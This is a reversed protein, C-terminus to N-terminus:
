KNPTLSDKVYHLIMAALMNQVDWDPLTWRRQQNYAVEWIKPDSYLGPRCVNSILQKENFIVNGLTIVNLEDKTYTTGNDFGQWAFSMAHVTGDIDGTINIGFKLFDKYKSVSRPLGFFRIIDEITFNHYKVLYDFFMKFGKVIEKTSETERHAYIATVPNIILGNPHLDYLFKLDAFLEKALPKMISPSFLFTINNEKLLRIGAILRDFLREKQTLYKAMTEVTDLKMSEAPMTRLRYRMMVEKDGDISVIFSYREIPYKKLEEILTETILIGNTHIVFDIKELGILNDMFYFVRDRSLLPEGWFFTVVIKKYYKLIDDYNERLFRIYADMAQYSIAREEKYPDRRYLLVCYECALNCNSDTIIQIRFDDRKTDQQASPM